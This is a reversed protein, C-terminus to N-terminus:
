YSRSRLVTYTEGSTYFRELPNSLTDRIDATSLVDLRITGDGRGTNVTVVYVGGKVVKVSNVAAGSIGTTVLTFDNIDVGTVIESFTVTFSVSAASTPNASARTISQIFPGTKDLTYTEGSTLGGNLPNSVADVITGNNLIDLRLTGNRMGTNVTVTYNSGSGSVSTVFAGIIGSANLSFDNKDVGTVPESFTVTFDVSSFNTPSPNARLSSVVTPATLDVMWAYSAPTVDLNGAPDKARVAFTHSGNSLGTYNKPSACAVFTAGDLSCEFTATLDFSSFTFAAAASNSQNAPKSDIQTDPATKDITYTEGNNFNGNNMGVGGLPNLAADLITDNDIVNLRITGDGNGTNVTVTRTADSGTIGNVSAGSIGTTTLSFDSTDVGVVSKSFTVTFDVSTEGSPNPSARVSSLVTPAPIASVMQLAMATTGGCNEGSFQLRYYYVTNQTVSNDIYSYNVPTTSTYNGCARTSAISAIETWALTDTSRYLKFTSNNIETTTAWTINVTSTVWAASFGSLVVQPISPVPTATQTPTVTPVPTPTVPVSPAPYRNNEARTNEELIVESVIVDGAGVRQISLDMQGDAFTAFPLAVIVQQPIGSLGVTTAVTGDLLLRESRGANDGEYFTLRAGYQKSPTLSTFKYQLDNTDSFRVTKEPTTGWGNFGDSLISSDYGCNNEAAWPTEGPGSDRYCYRIEQLDLISVVPGNLGSARRLSLLISGNEYDAPDLLISMTQPQNTVHVASLNPQLGSTDGVKKNNVYVDVWREGSCVAFTLDLHYRRGPLLNDFTYDLTEASGAQRYSQELDAGCTTIATGSSGTYGYGAAPTYATDNAGGADVSLLNWGIHATTAQTNNSEDAEVIVNSPDVKVSISPQGAESLSIPLSAITQEGAPVDVLITSLETGTEPTGQYLKVVAGTVDAEGDNKIVASATVAEAVRAEPVSLNAAVLDPKKKVVAAASATNNTEDAEAIAGSADAKVYITYPGPRLGATKWVVTQTPSTAGAALSEIFTSGILTGGNSPDGQYFGVTFNEAKHTGNNQITSSLNVLTGEPIDNPLNATQPLIDLTFPTLDIAPTDAAILTLDTLSIPGYTNVLLSVPVLVNGNIDPVENALYSNLAVALNPSQRNLGSFNAINEQWLPTGLGNIGFSVAPNENYARIWYIKIDATYLGAYGSSVVVSSGTLLLQYSSLGSLNANNLTLVGNKYFDFTQTVRDIVIKGTFSESQSTGASYFVPGDKFGLTVSNSSGADGGNAQTNVSASFEIINIPINKFNEKYTSYVTGTNTYGAHNNETKVYTEFYPNTGDTTVGSRLIPGIDQNDGTVNTAIDWYFSKQSEFDEVIQGNFKIWFVKIWTEGSFTTSSGSGQHTSFALQYKSLSSIDVNAQILNGDRYINLTNNLRDFVLKIITDYSQYCNHSLITPGSLLQITATCPFINATNATAFTMVHFEVDQINTIKFDSTIVNADLSATRNSPPMVSHVYLYNDPQGSTVVVEATGSAAVYKGTKSITADWQLNSFDIYNGLSPTRINLTASKYEKKPVTITFNQVSGKSLYPLGYRIFYDKSFNGIDEPAYIGVNGSNVDRILNFIYPSLSFGGGLYENQPYTYIGIPSLTNSAEPSYSLNQGKNIPGQIVIRNVWPYEPLSEIISINSPSSTSINGSINLSILAHDPDNTRISITRSYNGIQYGTTDLVIKYDISEGPALSGFSRKDLSVESGVNNFSYGLKGSGTNALTISASLVTGSPVTGFSWPNPISITPALSTVGQSWNGAVVNLEPKPDEQFTSLPRVANDIINGQKDTLFAVLVTSAPDYVNTDVTVPIIMPGQEFTQTYVDEHLVAGSGDIYEVVLHGDIIPEPHPNNVVFNVQTASTTVAEVGPEPLMKGSLVSLDATLNALKGGTPYNGSPVIFTHRGQPDNYSVVIVPDAAGGDTKTFQFTDRPTLAQVTFTDGAYVSGSVFALELGNAIALPTPSAYGSGFNVTGTNAGDSWNFVLPSAQGINGSGQATFTYTRDADGLYNGSTYPRSGGTWNNLDPDTVLAGLVVRSAAPIRGGGGIINNTIESLGDPSYLIAEVGYADYNGTNLFSMLVTCDNGTCTTTYGALIEPMPHSAADEPDTGLRGESRDNYGDLDSDTLIRILMDAGPAALTDAVSTNYNLNDSLYIQWWSTTMLPHKVFQPAATGNFEPTWIAILEGDMDESVPFFRKLVDQLTDTPAWVPILYEDITENGDAYGDEMGVRLSGNLADMYFVQDQGFAIDEMVIRIPAGEDILRMEDLNLPIPNSTFTQEDGPFLNEIQAIQGTAGVAVYSYAANPNDGIYINFILSTVERAYETGTNVLNYTFRLDAAHATDVATANAWSESFQNTSAQSITQETYSTTTTSRFGGMSSGKSVEHNLPPLSTLPVSVEMSKQISTNGNESKVYNTGTSSGNNQTSVEVNTITTKEQSSSLHLGSVNDSCNVNGQNSICLNGNNIININQHSGAPVDTDIEDVVADGVALGLGGVAAVAAFAVVCGAGASPVCAVAGGIAVIGLGVAAVVKTLNWGRKLDSVKPTVKFEPDLDYSAASVSSRDTVSQWKNWTQGNTVATSTGRTESTGYTHEEGETVTRTTTIVTVARMNISSPVVDVEPQPFAAVFPSNGPPLVWSPLNASVFASDEARPLIGYSCPGGAGTCYTVGFLEQGDDFKDKDSSERLKSTGLMYQEAYDPVADYDGDPCTGNPNHPKFQPWTEFPPGYATIGSLIAQVEAGDNPDKTDAPELGDSNEDNPNTCWWAEETDTLGDHDTDVSSLSMLLDPTTVLQELSIPGDPQTARYASVLYELSDIQNPAFGLRALKELKLEDVQAYIQNGDQALIAIDWEALRKLDHENKLTLRVRFLTGAGAASLDLTSSIEPNPTLTVTPTFAPAVNPLATPTELPRTAETLELNPADPLQAPIITSVKGHAHAVQVNLPEMNILLLSVMSLWLM